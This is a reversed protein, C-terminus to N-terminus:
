DGAPMNYGVGSPTGSEAGSGPLPGSRDEEDIAGRVSPDDERHESSERGEFERERGADDSLEKRKTPGLKDDILTKVASAGAKSRIMLELFNAVGDATMQAMLISVLARRRAAKEETEDAKPKSLQTILDIATFRAEDIEQPEYPPFALSPIFSLDNMLQRIRIVAKKPTMKIRKAKM